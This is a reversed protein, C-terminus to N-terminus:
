AKRNFELERIREDFRDHLRKRTDKESEIDSVIRGLQADYASQAMKLKVIELLIWSQLAIMTSCFTIQLWEPM